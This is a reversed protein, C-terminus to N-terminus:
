TGTLRAAHQTLAGLWVADLDRENRGYTSLWGKARELAQSARRGPDPEAKADIGSLALSLVDGAFQQIEQHNSLQQMAGGVLAPVGDPKLGRGAAAKVSAATIDANTRVPAFQAETVEVRRALVTATSRLATSVESSGPAERWADAAQKARAGVTSADGPKLTILKGMYETFVPGSTAKAALENAISSENWPEKLESNKVETAGSAQLKAGADKLARAEAAEAQPAASRLTAVLTKMASLDNPKLLPTSTAFARVATFLEKALAGGSTGVSALARQVAASAAQADAGGSFQLPAAAPAVAGPTAVRPAAFGDGRPPGAKPTGALWGGPKPAPAPASPTLAGASPAAQKVSPAKPPLGVPKTGVM